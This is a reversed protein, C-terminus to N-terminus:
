AEDARLRQARFGSSRVRRGEGTQIPMTLGVAGITIASDIGATLRKSRASWPTATVRSTGVPSNEIPSGSMSQDSQPVNSM